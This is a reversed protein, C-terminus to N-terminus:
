EPVSIDNIGNDSAAANYTQAQSAPDVGLIFMSLPLEFSVTDLDHFIIEKEPFAYASPGAESDLEAETMDQAAM